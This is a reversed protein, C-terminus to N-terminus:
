DAIGETNDEPGRVGKILFITQIYDVEKPLNDLMELRSRLEAVSPRSNQTSDYIFDDPNSKVQEFLKEAFEMEMLGQLDNHFQKRRFDTLDNITKLSVGVVEKTSRDRIVADPRSLRHIDFSGVSDDPLYFSHAHVVEVGREVFLIEFQDKFSPWLYL